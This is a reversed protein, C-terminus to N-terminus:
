KLKKGASRAPGSLYTEHESKVLVATGHLDMLPVVFLGHASCYKQVAMRVGEFQHSTYDHILIRGGPVLRPYFYELGALTPEYLDPDLSVLAFMPEEELERLSEPFYGKVVQAREPHPLRKIVLEVNTDAFNQRQNKVGIWEAEIELDRAHFGEFTDFLWIRREPFLRNIEAAFAGQYVGLEAVDGPISRLELERANLRLASLRVDQMSQIDRLSTCVGRYDSEILQERIVQETEQNLIALIIEEPQLALAAELSLVSM